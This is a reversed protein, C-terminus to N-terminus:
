RRFPPLSTSSRQHPGRAAPLAHLSTSRGMTASVTSGDRSPASFTPGPVSVLNSAALAMDKLEQIQQREV